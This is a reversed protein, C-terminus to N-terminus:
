SGDDAPEDSGDPVDSAPDPDGADEEEVSPDTSGDPIPEPPPDWPPSYCTVMDPDPADAEMGPDSLADPETGADVPAYCTPDSLGDPTPTGTLGQSDCGTGAAAGGLGMVLMWLSLRFRFLLTGRKAGLGLVMMVTLVGMLVGAAIWKWAEFGLERM